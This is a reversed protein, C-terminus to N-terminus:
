VFGNSFTYEFYQERLQRFSGRSIPIGQGNKLLIRRVEIMSIHQQNVIYGKYPSIFQGASVKELEQYLHGMTSKSELCEGNELYVTQIHLYNEIYLIEDLYISRIMGNQLKLVLIKDEKQKTKEMARNMAEEFEKQAFPKVLYHLAGVAFAEIAHDTSTTLFVIETKEHKARIERAVETGSIGPMYIDLLAIDYREQKVLKELFVFPNDYFDIKTDLINKQKLYRELSSQIVRIEQVDDDCIAFRIM